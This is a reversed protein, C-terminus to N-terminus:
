KQEKFKTAPYIMKLFSKSIVKKIQVFIM